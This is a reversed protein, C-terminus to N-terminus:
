DSRHRCMTWTVAGRVVPAATYDDETIQRLRVGSRGPGLEWAPAHSRDTSVSAPARACDEGGDRAQGARM